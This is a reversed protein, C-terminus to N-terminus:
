KKGLVLDVVWCGRVHPGPGRCHALLAEDASGADMLADALIPLREFAREEYITRALDVTNATLWRPDVAVPRFPNGLIDRLITAQAASEAPRASPKKRTLAHLLAEAAKGYLFYFEDPDTIFRIAVDANGTLARAAAVANAHAAQQEDRSARGDAHREMVEVASRCRGDLFLHWLRRCCACAFLRLKRSTMEAHLAWIMRSVDAGTLWEAETM